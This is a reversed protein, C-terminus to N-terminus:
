YSRVVRQRYEASGLLSTALTTQGQVELVQRWFTLEEARPERGLLQRYLSRLLLEPAPTATATGLLRPAAQQHEASGFFLGLAQEETLGLGLAGVFYQEESPQASRGLSAQFWGQVQRARSAPAQEIGTAVAWAGQRLLVDLWYEQEALGAPRDLLREYLRRLWRLSPDLQVVGIRSGTLETFWLNDDPGVTILAPSAQATPVAVARDFRGDVQVAAIGNVAGGAQTFWLRDDPASVIGNPRSGAQPIVFETFVGSTTVRGIRNSLFGTYWLNGDPGVTLSSPSSAATPLVLETIVGAPTLRGLRNGTVETFWLNGDPGSVISGPRSDATPIPFETITGQVTIRGLRNGTNETFWLNGDPGSVIGNPESNPTPM